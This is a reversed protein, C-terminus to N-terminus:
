ASQGIRQDSPAAQPQAAHRCHTVPHCQVDVPLPLAEKKFFLLLFSKDM